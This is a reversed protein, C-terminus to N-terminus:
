NIDIFETFERLVVKVDTCCWLMVDFFMLKIQSSSNMTIYLGFVNSLYVCTEIM